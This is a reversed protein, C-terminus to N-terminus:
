ALIDGFVAGPGYEYWDCSFTVMVKKIDSAAFTLKDHGIKKPWANKVYFTDLENGFGDLQSFQIEGKYNNLLLGDQPTWILAMWEELIAQLQPYAYFVIDIDGFKVGKAFKYEASMGKIVLDEFSMEPVQLEVVHKLAEVKSVDYSNTSFRLLKLVWRYVRIPDDALSNPSFDTNGQEQSTILFGPM